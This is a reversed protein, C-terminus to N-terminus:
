GLTALARALQGADAFRESREKALARTFIADLKEFGRLGPRREALTPLPATAHARVWALRGDADYPTVGAICEFLLTAVSYVDSAADAAEGFWLEPPMYAPTGLQAGRRTLQSHEGWRAEDTFKALGFDLLKVRGGPLVFVNAPKVDRHLVGAAHVAALGEVVQRGLVLGDHPPVGRGLTVDLPEGVLLEVVLYPTGGNASSEAAGVDVGFDLVRVVAPHELGNLARAERELRRREKDTSGEHEHLLKLAVLAGEPTRAAFVRGSAGEGLARELRYREGVVRGLM